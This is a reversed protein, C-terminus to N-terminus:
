KELSLKEYEEDFAKEVFGTVMDRSSEKFSNRKKFLEILMNEETEIMPHFDGTDYLRMSSFPYQVGWRWAEDFKKNAKKLGGPFLELTNKVMVYSALWRLDADDDVRRAKYAGQFLSGKENYKENASASMSGCIRQMFKAIGGEQNERVILHFHNSMLTWAWLDVLQKREPWHQPWEPFVVSQTAKRWNPDQHEDNLYLLARLFDRRDTTDRVIPLGRAGRKMVHMVSGIEHPEVRM